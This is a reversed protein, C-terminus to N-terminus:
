FKRMKESEKKTSFYFGWGRGSIIGLNFYFGPRDVFGHHHLDISRSCVRNNDSKETCIKTEKPVLRFELLNGPLLFINLVIMGLEM